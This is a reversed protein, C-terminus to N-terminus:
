LCDKWEARQVGSRSLIQNLVTSCLMLANRSSLALSNIKKKSEEARSELKELFVSVTLVYAVCLWVM